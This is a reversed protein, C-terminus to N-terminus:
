FNPILNTTNITGVLSFWCQLNFTVTASTGFYINQLGAYAGSTNTCFYFADGDWIAYMTLGDVVTLALDSATDGSIERIKLLNSVTCSTWSAASSNTVDFIVKYIDGATAGTPPASSAGSINNGKVSMVAVAATTVALATLGVNVQSYQARPLPLTLLRPTIQLDAFEVEYDFLVYGPSDTTSTKSLLFLEGDSYNNLDASMGYDTSKWSGQITLVATHNTWQPGLVTDPDSIVFPLLQTSTQSLFVSDRNKARYFLVDGNASTPSSTIYHAVVSKWRFKQYMQMYQRLTSDSFAAPTLPTGGVMTWTVVSGSGIPAFCFDRGTVSVGNKIPIVSSRSGRVSNGIALPATSIATVPGMRAKRKVQVRPKRALKLNRKSNKTKAMNLNIKV